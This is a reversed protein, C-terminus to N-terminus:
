RRPRCRPSGSSLGPRQQRLAERALLQREEARDPRGQAQAQRAAADLRARARVQEQEVRRRRGHQRGALELVAMRLAREDATRQAPADCARQQAPARDREVARGTPSGRPRNTRGADLTYVHVHVCRARELLREAQAGLLGPARGIAPPVSRMTASLASGRAARRASRGRARAVLQAAPVALAVLEHEAGRQRVRSAGAALEGRRQGRQRRRSACRRSAASGCGRCSRRCDRCRGRGRAVRQRRQQDLIRPMSSAAAARSPACQREASNRSPGLRLASASSSSTTATRTRGEPAGCVNM